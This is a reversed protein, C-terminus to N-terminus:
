ALLNACAIFFADPSDYGLQKALETCRAASREQETPFCPQELPITDMINGYVTGTLAAANHLKELAPASGQMAAKTNNLVLGIADILLGNTFENCNPHLYARAARSLNEQACAGIQEATLAAAFDADTVSIEPLLHISKWTCIQGADDKLVAIPSNQGGGSCDSAILVLKAKTCAPILGSDKSAAALDLAPDEYLALLAKAASMANEGGVGVIVDPQFENLKPMASRLEAFSVQASISFFEAVRIEQKRLRDIVEAAVKGCYLGPDTVLLARHLHYVERLERLAVSACGTKFYVKKPLNLMSYNM